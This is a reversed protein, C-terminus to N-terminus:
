QYATGDGDSYREVTQQRAQTRSFVAGSAMDGRVEGTTEATQNQGSMTQTADSEITYSGAESLADVHADAVAEADLPTEYIPDGSSGNSGDAAPGSAGACGAIAVLAVVLLAALQRRM